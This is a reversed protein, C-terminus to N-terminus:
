NLTEILRSIHHHYKDEYPITTNMIELFKILRKKLKYKSEKSISKGFNNLKEKLTSEEDLYKVLLKVKEDYENINKSLLDNEFYIYKDKIIVFGDRFQSNNDSFEPIITDKFSSELFAIFSDFYNIKDQKDMIFKIKKKINTTNKNNMISFIFDFLLKQYEKNIIFDDEKHMISDYNFKESFTNYNYSEKKTSNYPTTIIMVLKILKSYHNLDQKIKNTISFSSLTKHFQIIENNDWDNKHHILQHLRHYIKIKNDVIKNDTIKNDPFYVEFFYKYADKLEKFNYSKSEVHFYNYYDKITSLKTTNMFLKLENQFELNLYEKRISLTSIIELPFNFLFSDSKDIEQIKMKFLITRIISRLFDTVEDHNKVKFLPVGGLTAFGDSYELNYPIINYNVYGSKFFISNIINSKTIKKEISILKKYFNINENKIFISNEKLFFNYIAYEIPLKDLYMSLSKKEQTLNLMMFIFKSIKELNNEIINLNIKPQKSVVENIVRNKVYKFNNEVKYFSNIKLLDKLIKDTNINLKNM